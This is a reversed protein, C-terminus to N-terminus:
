EMTLVWINSWVYTLRVLRVDNTDFVISDTVGNISHNPSGRMISFRGTIWTNWGNLFVIEDGVAPTEPLVGVFVPNETPSYVSYETGSTLYYTTQDGNLHQQRNSKNGVYAGRSTTYGTGGNAIAVTGTVNGATTATAANGNINLVGTALNLILPRTSDWIGDPDGSASKLLYLNSGDNRWFTSGNASRIRYNNSIESKLEGTLLAGTLPVLKRITAENSYPSDIEASGGHVSVLRCGVTAGASVNTWVFRATASTAGAPAVQAIRHVDRQTQHSFNHIASVARQAGDLVTQLADNYFIMDFYVSGSGSDGTMLSDGTVTYTGGAVVPFRESSINGTNPGTPITYTWCNGWLINFGASGVGITWGTSGLEFGGNFLLNPSNGGDLIAAHRWSASDRVYTKGDNPADNLTGAGIAARAAAADTGAAIVAPKSTVETWTPVYNGAKATSATTGIALSSTGAGIAARAAAADTGAAIVAPKETISGWSVTQAPIGAIAQTVDDPSVTNLVVNGSSDTMCFKASTPSGANYLMYVTHPTKMAPLATVIKFILNTNPM